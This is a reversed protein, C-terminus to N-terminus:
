GRRMAKLSFGPKGVPISLAITTGHKPESEIVLSGGLNEARRKLNILGNGGFGEYTTHEDFSPVHFGKGNDSIKVLLKNGTVTVGLEGETAEAHKALNNVCEKFMLYVERRIDAGLALDKSAESFEFRFAIDKAELVDSAFRRMRKALDDLSDKNPNIAWVIDSMSDVMERSTDAILNLPESARNNGVKQRVVESLIAIQSLSSGIDDHLDTAIRTRVKELEILRKLRYNYITYIVASIVVTFLLLFWWQQWFPRAINFSVVAPQESIVGNPNVARVLFRYNGPGLNAFNVMRVDGLNTWDSAAAGELQYQYRLRESAGVSFFEILLNNQSSALNLGGITHQGFESLAYNVGAIQLRSIFNQPVPLPLDAEPKLRSLGNQTGFWLTGSRDRLATTVFDASLGDATSYHRIAGTEPTLRDIGSITGIYINGALDETLCRVNNSSLGNETTYRIFELKEAAPNNVMSLGDSSSSIWLRGKQDFHLAFIGGEPLGDAKTFQEFRNNRLRVLGGNSYFGFWLNGDRDEAFSAPARKDPFNEVKSFDQFKKAAIDFKTLGNRETNDHRTSFWLNGRSDKFARYLYNSKLGDAEQAYIKSPPRRNIAAFNEEAAFHYLKNETLGWWNNQDDLVASTSTWILRAEPPLGLQISEIGNETIRSIRWDGHVVFIEGRANEYISHIRPDILNSSETYTTLGQRALRTAGSNATIWINGALDENLDGDSVPFGNEDKLMQVKEGDFVFLAGVALVWFKKDFSKLMSAANWTQPSTEQRQSNAFSLHVMKGPENPLSVTGSAAVMRTELAYQHPRFNETGNLDSEEPLFIYVGNTQSVWIRGQEDERVVRTTDFASTRRIPYHVFRGDPLRRLVGTDCGIWLNGGRGEWISKVRVGRDSAVSADLEIQRLAVKDGERELLFLGANTGGWLRGQSDEFLTDFNNPAIKETNLKIKNPRLNSEGPKVDEIDARRVRHLGDSVIWYYGDRTEYFYFITQASSEDGLSYNTFERGDFRSLGDRTCFWLFGLSDRFTNTVASSPLGDASTYIKIPLQEALVTFALWWLVIVSFLTGLTISRKSQSEAHRM